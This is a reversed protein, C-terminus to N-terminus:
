RDRRGLQVLGAAWDQVVPVLGAIVTQEPGPKGDASRTAAVRLSHDGGQVVYLDGPGGLDGLHSRLLDLTCFPDHTGQLFLSPVTIRPWHAVRLASPDGPRHLPYSCLLLGAAGLGQAVAMSAVRGGYSRGGVVWADDSGFRSRAQAFLEMFGAVSAGAAPPAARGAARYPLDARVVPHGGAALGGALAKLGASSLDGGAGHTLFFCPGAPRLPRHAQARVKLPGSRGPLTFVAEEIPANM